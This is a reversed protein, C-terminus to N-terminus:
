KVQSCWSCQKENRFALCTTCTALASCLGPCTPNSVAGCIVQAGHQGICVGRDDVEPSKACWVCSLDAECTSRETYDKVCHYGNSTIFDPLLLYGLESLIVDSLGGYLILRNGTLVSSHGFRNLDPLALITLCVSLKVNPNM